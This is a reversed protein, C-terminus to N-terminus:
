VQWVQGRKLHTLNLFVSSLNKCVAVDRRLKSRIKYYESLTEYISMREDDSGALLAATRFALRFSLEADLRWLAELATIADM